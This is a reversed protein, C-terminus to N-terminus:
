FLYDRTIQKKKIHLIRSARLSFFCGTMEGISSAKLVSMAFLTSSSLYVNFVVLSSVGFIFVTM